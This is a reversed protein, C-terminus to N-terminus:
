DPLCHETETAWAEACLNEFMMGCYQDLQCEMRARVAELCDESLSGYYELRMEFNQSCGVFDEYEEFELPACSELEGCYRDVLTDIVTVEGDECSAFVVLTLLILWTHQYM